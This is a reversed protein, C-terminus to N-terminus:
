APWLNEDIWNLAENAAEVTAVPVRTSSKGHFLDNRLGSVAKYKSLLDELETKMPVLRYLAKLKGYVSMHIPTSPWRVRGQMDPFQKSLIKEAEAWFEKPSGLSASLGQRNTAVEIEDFRQAILSETAVNLWFLAENTDGLELYMSARTRCETAWPLRDLTGLNITLPEISPVFVDYLAAPSGKKIWGLQAAEATSIIQELDSIDRPAPIWDQRGGHDVRLTWALDQLISFAWTFSQPWGEVPLDFGQIAQLRETYASGDLLTSIELSINSEGTQWRSAGVSVAAAGEGIQIFTEGPQNFAPNIQAQIMVGQWSFNVQLPQRCIIYPVRFNLRTRLSRDQLGDLIALLEAREKDFEKKKASNCPDQISRTLKQFKQIETAKISEIPIGDFQGFIQNKIDHIQFVACNVPNNGEARRFATVFKAFRDRHTPPVVFPSPAFWRDFRTVGAFLFMTLAQAQLPKSWPIGPSVVDLLSMLDDDSIARSVELPDVGPLFDNCIRRKAQLYQIQNVM